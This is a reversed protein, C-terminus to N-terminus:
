GGIATRLTALASAQLAYVDPSSELLVNDSVLRSLTGSLNSLYTGKFYNTATRMEKTLEPRTFTQKGGFIMLRAASARVLDSGSKAGIKAAISNTTLQHGSPTSTASPVVTGSVVSTDTGSPPAPPSQLAAVVSLLAPMEAKLFEESGEYEVEIQGYKIRIKSTSM